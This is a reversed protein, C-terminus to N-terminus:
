AWENTEICLAGLHLQQKYDILCSRELNSITLLGKGVEVEKWM